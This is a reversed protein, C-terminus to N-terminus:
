GGPRSLSSSRRTIHSLVDSRSVPSSGAVGVKALNHEVLQAIGAIQSADRFGVRRFRSAIVCRLAVVHRTDRCGESCLTSSADRTIEQWAMSALPISGRVEQIGNLREGLQAVGGRGLQVAVTLLLSCYSAAFATALFWWTYGLTYRTDVFQSQRLDCLGTNQLAKHSKTRFLGCAQTAIIGRANKEYRRPGVRPRREM